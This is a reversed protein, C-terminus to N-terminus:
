IAETTDLETRGWLHCGVLSGRGQSEGPLFVPTPQWKRGWHMFTFISPSTAWDREVGLSGMSQLRVPEETWPIKWALTSCYPVMAKELLPIRSLWLVSCMQIQELSTSLSSGMICLSTLWFSFYLYWISICIYPIQVSPVSSNINLAATSFCVYHFSPLSFLLHITSYCLFKFVMHLSSLWLFKSYSESFEFPSQSFLPTPLSIPPLDPLFSVHIYRHSIRTSTHCFVM